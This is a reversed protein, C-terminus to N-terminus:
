GNLKGQLILKAKECSDCNKHFDYASELPISNEKLAYKEKRLSAWYSRGTLKKEPEAPKQRREMEDCIKKALIDYDIDM